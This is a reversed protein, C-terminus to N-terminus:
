TLCEFTNETKIPDGRLALVNDIGLFQLDILANETEEKSFGGCILHPVADVKYKNLPTSQRYHNSCLTYLSLFHDFEWNQPM